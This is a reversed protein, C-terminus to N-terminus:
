TLKNKRTKPDYKLFLQQYLKSHKSLTKRLKNNRTRVDQINEQNGYCKLVFRKLLGKQALRNEHQVKFLIASLCLLRNEDFYERDAYTFALYYSLLTDITGIKIKHGRNMIENYSICQNPEYIFAVYDGDVSVSYHIPTIEGIADHKKITSRLGAKKLAQQLLDVTKKPHISLADFDPINQIVPASTYTTYMANAYGGIFVVGNKALCEYVIKFVLEEDKPSTLHRQVECQKTKLPYNKNLLNLRTLVKEWRSVDSIPSSLEYYMSQRLFNPPAYMIGNRIVVSKIISNYLEPHLYTIDAIAYNNVFVKYTGEHIGSRAEVETFKHKSYVDALKKALSFAYPSYFDFDPLEYDYEYFQDKKPLIANIATGGYVICKTKKIFSQLLSNIKKMEPTHVIKKGQMKESSDVSARLITLECEKFSLNKCM